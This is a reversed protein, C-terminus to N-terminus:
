LKIKKCARVIDKVTQEVPIFKYGNLTRLIKENSYFDRITFYRIMTNDVTIKSNAFLSLFKILAFFTKITFPTLKRKPPEIGIEKAFYTILTKFDINEANLIFRQKTINKEMLLVSIKAVDRVDVVGIGGDTYVGFNKTIFKYLMGVHGDCYPTPGLIFSPNVIVANLGEAIGRWVEMEGYYKSKAYPSTKKEPEAYSEETILGNPENGLAAISSVHCFKKVKHKLALNVLQEVAKVNVKFFAEEKEGLLSVKAATHYIEEVDQLAEEMAFYDTIDAKFWQIKDFLKEYDPNYLKFTAKVGAIKKENRFIARVPKNLKLLELLLHSGLFGTAGTVLIM